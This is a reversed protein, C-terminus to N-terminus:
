PSARSQFNHFQEAPVVILASELARLYTAPAPSHPVLSIAVDDDRDFQACVACAAHEDAINHDFQHAAFSFQSWVLAILLVWKLTGAFRSASSIPM